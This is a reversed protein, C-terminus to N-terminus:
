FTTFREKEQDRSRRTTRDRNPSRSRSRCTPSRSRRETNARPDILPASVVLIPLPQVSATTVPNSAPHVIIRETNNPRHEKSDKEEKLMADEAPQDYFPDKSPCWAGNIDMLDSPRSTLDVSFSTFDIKTIRCNIKNELRVHEEPHKVESDSLCKMPLNGSLGNELRINM